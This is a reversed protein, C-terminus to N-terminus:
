VYQVQTCARAPISNLLNPTFKCRALGTRAADDLLPFGSSKRVETELVSGDLDIRLGLTVAGTQEKRM